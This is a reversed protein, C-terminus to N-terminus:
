LREQGTECGQPVGIYEGYLGPRSDGLVSGRIGHRARAAVAVAFWAGARVCVAHRAAFRGCRGRGLGVGAAVRGPHGQDDGARRRRHRRVDRQGLHRGSRRVHVAVHVVVFGQPFTRVHVDADLLGLVAQQRQVRYPPERPCARRGAAAPPSSPPRSGGGPRTAGGCLSRTPRVRRGRVTCPCRRGSRWWCTLQGVFRWRRSVDGTQLRSRSRSTRRLVGRLAPRAPRCTGSCKSPVTGPARPVAPRGYCSGPGVSFGVATPAAVSFRGAGGRQGLVVSGWSGPRASVPVDPPGFGVGRRLGTPRSRVAWASSVVVTPVPWPLVVRGRCGGRVFWSLPFFCALHCFRFGLCPRGVLSAGFRRDLFDAHVEVVCSVRRGALVREPVVEIRDVSRVVRVRAPQGSREVLRVDRGPVVVSQRVAARDRDAVVPQRLRASGFPRRCRPRGVRRQGRLVEVVLDVCPAFDPELGVFARRCRSSPSCSSLLSGACRVVPRM